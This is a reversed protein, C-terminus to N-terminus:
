RCRSVGHPEAGSGALAGGRSGAPPTRRGWVGVFSGVAGTLSENTICAKM